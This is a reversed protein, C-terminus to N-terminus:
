GGERGLCSEESSMRAGPARPNARGSELMELLSCGSRDVLVTEVEELVCRLPRSRLKVVDVTAVVDVVDVVGVVCLPVLLYL